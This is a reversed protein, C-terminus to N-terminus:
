HSQKIYYQKIYEQLATSKEQTFIDNLKYIHNDEIKKYELDGNDSTKIEILENDNNQM